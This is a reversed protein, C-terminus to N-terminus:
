QEGVMTQAQQAARPEIRIDFRPSPHFSTHRQESAESRPAHVACLQKYCRVPCRSTVALLDQYSVLVSPMRATSSLLWM